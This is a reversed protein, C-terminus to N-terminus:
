QGNLFPLSEGELSIIKVEYVIGPPRKEYLVSSEISIQNNGRNETVNGCKADAARELM